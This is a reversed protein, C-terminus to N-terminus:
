AKTHIGYKEFVKEYIEDRSNCPNDSLEILERYIKRATEEVLRQRETKIAEIVAFSYDEPLENDTFYCELGCIMPPLEMNNVFLRPTKVFRKNIVISNAKIKERFSEALADRIMEHIGCPEYELIDKENIYDKKM